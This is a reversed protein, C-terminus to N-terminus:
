HEKPTIPHGSWVASIQLSQVESLVRHTCAHPPGPWNHPKCPLPTTTCHPCFPAHAACRNDPKVPDKYYSLQSRKMTSDLYHHSHPTSYHMTHAMCVNAVQPQWGLHNYLYLSMTVAGAEDVHQVFKHKWETHTYPVTCSWLAQFAITHHSASAFCTAM